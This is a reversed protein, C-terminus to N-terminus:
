ISFLPTTLSICKLVDLPFLLMLKTQPAFNLSVDDHFIFLFLHTSVCIQQFLSVVLFQVFVFCSYKTIGSIYIKELNSVCDVETSSHTAKGVCQSPALPLPTRLSSQVGKNTTLSFPPTRENPAAVGDM